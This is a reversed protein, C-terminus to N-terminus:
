EVIQDLLESNAPDPTKDDEKAAWIDRIERCKKYSTHYEKVGWCELTEYYLIWVEGKSWDELENISSPLEPKTSVDNYRWILAISLICIIVLTFLAHHPKFNLKPWNFEIEM